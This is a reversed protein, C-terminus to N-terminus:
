HRAVLSNSYLDYRLEGTLAINRMTDREHEFTILRIADALRVESVSERIYLRANLSPIDLIMKGFGNSNNNDYKIKTILNYSGSASRGMAKALNVVDFLGKDMGYDFLYDAYQISVQVVFVSTKYPLYDDYSIAHLQNDKVIYMSDITEDTGIAAIITDPETLTVHLTIKNPLHRRIMAKSVIPLSQLKRELVRPRMAFLSIGRLDAMIRQIEAPVITYTEVKISVSQIDFLPIYRLSFWGIAVLLIVIIVTILRWWRFPRPESIKQPVYDLDLYMNDMM